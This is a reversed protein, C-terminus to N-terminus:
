ERGAGNLLALIARAIYESPRDDAVASYILEAVAEVVDDGLEPSAAIMAAYVAESYCDHHRLDSGLAVVADGSARWMEGTPEVRVIRYGSM